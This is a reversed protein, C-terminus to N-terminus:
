WDNAKARLEKHIAKLVDDTIAGHSTATLNILATCTGGPERLSLWLGTKKALLEM